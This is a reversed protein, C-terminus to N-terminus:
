VEAHLHALLEVAALLVGGRRPRPRCDLGDGPLEAARANRRVAASLHGSVLHAPARVPSIRGSGSVRLAPRLASAGSESGDRLRLYLLGANSEGGADDSGAGLGLQFSLRRYRNRAVSAMVPQQRRTRASARLAGM